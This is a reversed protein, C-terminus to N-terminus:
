IYLMNNNGQTGKFQEYSINGVDTLSSLLELYGRKYDSLYLPRAHLTKDQKLLDHREGLNFKDLLEPDYLPIEAAM